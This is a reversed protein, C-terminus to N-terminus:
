VKFKMTKFKQVLHQLLTNFKVQAWCVPIAEKIPLLFVGATLPPPHNGGGGGRYPVPGGRLPSLSGM